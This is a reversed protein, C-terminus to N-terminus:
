PDQCYSPTQVERGSHIEMLVVVLEQTEQVQPHDKQGKTCNYEIKEASKFDDPRRANITM